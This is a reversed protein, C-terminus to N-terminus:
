LVKQISVGGLIILPIYLAMVWRVDAKHNLEYYVWFAFFRQAGGPLTIFTIFLVPFLVALAFGLILAWVHKEEPIYPMLLAIIVIAVLSLPGAITDLPKNQRNLKEFNLGWYSQSKISFFKGYFILILPVLAIVWYLVIILDILNQMMFRSYGEMQCGHYKLYADSNIRLVTDMLELWEFIGLQSDGWVRM